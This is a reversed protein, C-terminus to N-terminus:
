CRSRATTAKLLAKLFKKRHTSKGDGTEWPHNTTKHLSLPLVSAGPLALQILEMDGVSFANIRAHCRHHRRWVCIPNSAMFPSNTAVAEAEYPLNLGGAQSITLM